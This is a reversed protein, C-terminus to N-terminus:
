CHSASIAVGSQRKESRVAIEYSGAAISEYYTPKGQGSQVVNGDADLLKWNLGSVSEACPCITAMTPKGTLSRRLWILGSITRGTIRMTGYPSRNRSAGGGTYPLEIYNKAMFHMVYTQYESPTVFPM